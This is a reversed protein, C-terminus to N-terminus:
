YEDIEGKAVGIERELHEIAEDSERLRNLIWRPSAFLMSLKNKKWDYNDKEKVSDFILMTGDQKFGIIKGKVETVM